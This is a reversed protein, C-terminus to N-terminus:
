ERTASECTRSSAGPVQSVAEDEDHLFPTSEGGVFINNYIYIYIYICMNIWCGKIKNHLDQNFDVQGRGGGVIRLVKEGEGEASRACEGICLFVIILCCNLCWIQSTGGKVGIRPSPIILPPSNNILPPSYCSRSHYSLTHRARDTAVARAHVYVTHYASLPLMHVYVDYHAAGDLAHSTHIDNRDVGVCTYAYQICLVRLLACYRVVMLGKVIFAAM